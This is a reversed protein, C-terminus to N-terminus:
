PEASLNLMKEAKTHSFHYILGQSPNAIRLHEPQNDILLHLGPQTEFAIFADEGQFDENIAEINIFHTDAGPVEFHDDQKRSVVTVEALEGLERCMKFAIVPLSPLTPHCDFALVLLRLKHPRSPPLTAAPLERTVPHM